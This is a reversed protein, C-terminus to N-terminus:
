SGCPNTSFRLCVRSLSRIHYATTNTKMGSAFRGSTRNSWALTLGAMVADQGAKLGDAFQALPLLQSQAVDDLWPVLQTGTHRRIMQAFAQVLRYARAAQPSAQQLAALQEQARPDLDVSDRSARVLGGSPFDLHRFPIM